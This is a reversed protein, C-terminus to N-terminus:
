KTNPTFTRINSKVIEGDEYYTDIRWNYKVNATPEWKYILLDFVNDKIPKKNEPIGIEFIDPQTKLASEELGKKWMVLKRVEGKPGQWQFRLADKPLEDLSFEDILKAAVQDIKKECSSFLLVSLFLFTLYITRM